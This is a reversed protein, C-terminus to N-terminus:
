KTNQENFKQYLDELLKLKDMNKAWRIANQRVKTYYDEDHIYRVLAAALSIYDQVVVGANYQRMEGATSILDNCIAPIGLAAYERLKLSDAYKEFSIDGEYWAIGVYARSVIRINEEYSVLGHFKIRVSHDSALVKRKSGDSVNGIVHLMVSDTIQDLVGLLLDIESDSIFSKTYIIDGKNKKEMPAKPMEDVFPSNPLYFLKQQDKGVISKIKEGMIPSVYTVIDAKTVAFKYMYEYLSNLLINNFRSQSYDISHFHIKADSFLSLLYASVFNLPDVALILDFKPKFFLYVINFVIEQPWRVIGKGWLRIKKPELLDSRVITPHTGILPHEVLVHKYGKSLLYKLIYDAGGKKVTDDQFLRHVLVLLNADNQM